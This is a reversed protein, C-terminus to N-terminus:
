GPSAAHAQQRSSDTRVLLEQYDAVTAFSTWLKQGSVVLHEGDIVAKTRLAALDSGADPESFGQCWIM